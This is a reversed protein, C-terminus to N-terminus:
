PTKLKGLQQLQQQVKPNKLDLDFEVDGIKLKLKNPDKSVSPEIKTNTPITVPPPVTTTTTPSSGSTGTTGQTGSTAAGITDKATNAIGSAASAAGRALAGGAAAAGRGLASGAAMTGRALAGGLAALFPAFEKVPKHVFEKARM